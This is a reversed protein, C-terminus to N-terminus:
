IANCHRMSLVIAHGNNIGKCIQIITRMISQADMLLSPIRIIQIDYRPNSIDLKQIKYVPNFIDKSISILGGWHIIAGKTLHSTSLRRKFEFLLQHLIWANIQLNLRNWWVCFCGRTFKVQKASLIMFIYLIHIHIYIKIRKWPNYIYLWFFRADTLSKEGTESLCDIFTIKCHWSCSFRAENCAMRIRKWHHDKIAGAKCQYM